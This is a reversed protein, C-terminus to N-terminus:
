NKRASTNRIIKQSILVCKSYYNQSTRALCYEPRINFLIRETKFLFKAPSVYNGEWTAERFTPLGKKKDM